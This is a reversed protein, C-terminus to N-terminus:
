TPAPRSPTRDGGTRSYGPPRRAPRDQGARLGPQLGQRRHRPHRHLEPAAHRTSRRPTGTRPRCLHAIAENLPTASSPTTSPSWPTPRSRSASPAKAADAPRRLRPDGGRRAPPLTVYFSQGQAPQWSLKGFYLDSEFPSTLVGPEFPRPISCTPRRRHRLRRRPLGHRQPGARQARLLRLLPAQGHRDPRRVVPRMQAREYDPKEDGRERSFDDQAVLGKDQFLYLVEGHWDNGGSKTIATIVAAAAKEYEAKYNQTLVRFEQVANQPFPNGRSHGAHLRRGPLVDNKYSLGDVFVNVQRSDVGGSRFKQRTTRTTPSAVGPALAAFNLFNRSNQPLGRDAATTVNTAIESRARTSWSRM